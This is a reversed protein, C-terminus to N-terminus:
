KGRCLSGQMGDRYASELKVDAFSNRLDQSCSVYAKIYNDTYGFIERTKEDYEEFLVRRVTGRNSEFFQLASREGAKALEAARRKKVEAPIQGLMEAAATGPRRSYPFVHVKCYKIRSVMDLSDEFDEESEGPFGAIIDTSLGYCPDARRLAEAIELYENRDYRRNMAKLVRDSGSQLSLHLHCCLKEYCLLRKVCETNVVTPELSSLRIRFDGPLDNLMRIMMEIGFFPEEGNPQGYRSRFEKETGYLATNIGALVIEKFGQSILLKAEELVSEPNRSRVTGRAYPIICYSCFRDCGEQIKIVARTRSEMSTILENEEYERLTERGAVYNRRIRDGLFREVYEMIRGKENVGCIIDVEPIAEVEEPSIQSYCGVVATVCDPNKKKMRRIYQRSKRDALRTVTCTNVVYIDATEDEQVIEYGANRFRESMLQTEYQNVKCGLTYFAVKM